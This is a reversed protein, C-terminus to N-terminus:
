PWGRTPWPRTREAAPWCNWAREALARALDVLGRKDSVSLVARRVPVFDSM